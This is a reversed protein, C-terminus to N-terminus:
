LGDCDLPLYPCFELCFGLPLFQLHPWQPVSGVPKAGMTQEVQKRIGVLVMTISSQCVKHEGIM